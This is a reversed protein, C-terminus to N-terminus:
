RRDARAARSSRALEEALEIRLEAFVHLLDRLEVAAHELGRVAPREEDVAGRARRDLRREGRQDLRAVPHEHRHEAAEAVELDLDRPAAAGLNAGDLGLPARTKVPHCAAFRSILFCCAWSRRPRAVAVGRGGHRLREGLEPARGRARHAARRRRSRWARRCPGRRGVRPLEVDHAGAQLFAQAAGGAARRQGQVLPRFLEDHAPPVDLLPQLFCPSLSPSPGIM